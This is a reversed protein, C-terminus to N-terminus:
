YNGYQSINMLDIKLTVRKCGQKKSEQTNNAKRFVLEVPHLKQVSEVQEIQKVGKMEQILNAPDASKTYKISCFLHFDM